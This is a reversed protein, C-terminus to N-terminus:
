KLVSAYQIRYLNDIKGVWNGIGGQKTRYTIMVTPASLVFDVRIPEQLTENYGSGNGFLPDNYAYVAKRDLVPDDPITEIAGEEILQAITPAGEAGFKGDVIPFGSLDRSFDDSASRIPPYALNPHFYDMRYTVAFAFQNIGWRISSLYIGFNEKTPYGRVIYETAEETDNLIEIEDPNYFSVNWKFGGKTWYPAPPGQFMKPPHIQFFNDDNFIFTTKIVAADEPIVGNFFSFEQRVTRCLRNDGSEDERVGDRYVESCGADSENGNGSLNLVFRIRDADITLDSLKMDFRDIADIRSETQDPYPNAAIMMFFCSIQFISLFLLKCINKKM